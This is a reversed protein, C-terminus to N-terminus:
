TMQQGGTVNYAQGTEYDQELIYLITKVVDSVRCGRGMPVKSEYIRRVEERPANNFKQRYQDFLGGPASWLPLDLFNGPCIANVRIGDEILDLALSQVLGIGGFKAAAYASNYKSGIKGSKSNIQILNGRKAAQMVEAATKMTVFVGILNVDIIKRWLNSPFATVKHAFLIGANAIALDLSGYEAVAATMAARMEDEDTVNVAVSIATGAGHRENLQGATEAATEANLDAVVVLAGQAALGEAIEKGVGQGGGTVLAVCNRARAAVASDAAKKRRYSEASWTDIFNRERETLPKVGGFSQAGIMVRASSAYMAAVVGADKLTRGVAFGGVGPILLVKPDQDRHALRFKDLADRVVGRVSETDLQAPIPFWLPDLGCYVIQDPNLPGGMALGRGATLSVLTGVAEDRIPRLLSSPDQLLSRFAPLIARIAADAEDGTLEPIFAKRSRFDIASKNRRALSLVAREFAATMTRIEEDSDAAVLLGHKAMLVANADAGHEAKYKALVKGLEMALPLGPDVYEMWVARIAKPLKLRKFSNAGGRSCTLSNVVEGHTHMVFAQPMQAHLITEVSPRLNPDPPNLRADLLMRAIQEEKEDRDESFRGGPIALVRALDVELLDVPEMTAMSTGSAKVFMTRGDKVSSNGGGAIVQAPDNGYERSLNILLRIDRKRVM